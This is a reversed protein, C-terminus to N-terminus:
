LRGQLPEILNPLQPRGKLILAHGAQGKALERYNQVGRWGVCRRGYPEVALIAVLIEPGHAGPASDCDFLGLVARPARPRRIELTGPCELELDLLQQRPVLLSAARERM